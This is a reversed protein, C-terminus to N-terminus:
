ILNGFRERFGLIGQVGGTHIAVIRSGRPFFDKEILDFIGYIMKGTYIPDLQIQYERKFSNIFELLPPSHKAYGGFHYDTQISFDDFTENPSFKTLLNQVEKKMFDGKLASFGLVHTRQKKSQILGAITGGTGCSTCIFDPVFDLQDLIELGLEACGQLALENTGGEPLVYCEDLPIKLDPLLKEKLAYTKRDVFHLQMGCNEAFSLTSNLPLIKEGRVIGITKLNFIKGAAATAFLHNSYAGGFTLLYKKQTQQTEAINYKLKRWKNGQLEPHTLDDRKLWFHIDKKDLLSHRLLEIPTTDVIM